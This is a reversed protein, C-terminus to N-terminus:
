GFMGLNAGPAAAPLSSGGPTGWSTVKAGGTNGGIAKILSQTSLYDSLSSGAQSLAAGAVQGSNIVPQVNPTVYGSPTANTKFQNLRSMLADLSSYQSNAANTKMGVSNSFLSAPLNVGGLRRQIDNSLLALADTSNQTKANATALSADSDLITALRRAADSNTSLRGLADSEGAGALRTALNQGAQSRVGAASQLSDATLRARTLANGSSGGVYGQRARNAKDENLARNLAQMASQQYTDASLLDADYIGQAGSKRAALVQDLGDLEAQTIDGSKLRMELNRDGILAAAALRDQAIKALGAQEQSYYTGDYIGGAAKVAADQLAQYEAPVAGPDPMESAAQNKAAAWDNYQALHVSGPNERSDDAVWQYVNRTEGQSQLWQATEDRLAPNADLYAKAQEVTMGQGAVVPSITSSPGFGGMGLLQEIIAQEAPAGNITAWLPLSTNVATPNSPMVGASVGNGQVGRSLLYSNWDFNNKDAALQTNTANASQQAKKAGNASILSGVLDLGGGILAAAIAAM